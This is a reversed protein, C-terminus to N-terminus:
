AKVKFRTVVRARVSYKTTKSKFTTTSVEKPLKLKGIIDGTEIKKINKPYLAHKQIQSLKIQIRWYKVDDIEEFPL